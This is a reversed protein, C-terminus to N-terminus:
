ASGGIAMGLHFRNSLFTVMLVLPTTWVMVSGVANKAGMTRPPLPWPPPKAGVWLLPTLTISMAQICTMGANGAMGRGNAVVALAVSPLKLRGSIGAEM